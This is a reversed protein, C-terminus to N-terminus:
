RVSENLINRLKYGRYIVSALASFILGVLAGSTGFKWTMPLGVVFAIFVGVVISIFGIDTYELANLTADIPMNILNIGQLVFGLTILLGLESYKSSYLLEIIWEGFIHGIGVLIFATIIMIFTLQKSISVLKSKDHIYVTMKPLLFSSLGQVAPSLIRTASLIVGLEAVSAKGWFSLLLWPFMQSSFIFGINSAVIWKGLKLNKYFYEKIKINNVRELSSRFFLLYFWISIIISLIGTIAYSTITNLSGFLYFALFFITTLLYLLGCYFFNKKVNLEALLTYKFFYLTTQGAFLVFLFILFEIYEGMGFIFVSAILVVFIFLNILLFINQFVLSAYRYKNQENKDQQRFLIAYPTTIIARQFGIAIMVISLGLIYMGFDDKSTSRALLIGTIFIVASSLGQEGITWYAQKLGQSKLKNIV